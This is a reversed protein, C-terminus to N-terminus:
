SPAPRPHIACFLIGEPDALVTWRHPEEVEWRVEAGLAKLEDLEALDDLQIDLHVRNAHEPTDPKPTIWVDPQGDKRLLVSEGEELGRTALSEADEPVPAMGLVTSWFPAAVYADRCFLVISSLSSM